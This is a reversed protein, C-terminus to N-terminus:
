SLFLREVTWWTAVVAIVACAPMVVRAHYWPKDATWRGVLAWALLIVTLQGLEVGGNFALLASFFQKPPLGLEGLAGAFGLGHILGFAFVIVIRWPNLHRVIMNELAVFLISLAILPEVIAPSAYIIGQSALGLTMYQEVTFTTAQVLVPKLRPELLYLSLVFLIHDLGLPLIHEFGLKVYTWVVGTRSLKSLDLGTPHALATGPVALLLVPLM